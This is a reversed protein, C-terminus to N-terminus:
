KDTGKHSLIAEVEYEEKNNILDPLPNHFNPGHIDTEHYSSLESAHFM